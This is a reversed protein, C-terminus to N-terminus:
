KGGRRESDIRILRDLQTNLQRIRQERERSEASVRDVEAKLQKIREDRDQSEGSFREVESNLQRIRAELSQYQEMRIKLEANLQDVQRAQQQSKTELVATEGRLGLIAEAAPRFPSAPADTVLRTLYAQASQWCPPAQCDELPDGSRAYILGLHFLAEGQHEGSPELLLYAKYSAVAAGYDGASFESRAKDFAVAAPAAPEPTATVAVAAPPDPIPVAAPNRGRHCSPLLIATLVLLFMWRKMGM